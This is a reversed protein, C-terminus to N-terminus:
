DKLDLKQKLAQIVQAPASGGSLVNSWLVSLPQQIEPSQKLAQETVQEAVRYRGVRAYGEIFPLFETGDSPQYGSHLAADGLQAVDGWAREQRKLEARQYYYTWDHVPETGFIWLLGYPDQPKDEIVRDPASIHALADAIGSYRPQADSSGDVTYLVGAPSLYAVLSDAISGHFQYERVFGWVNSGSRLNVQQNRKLDQQYLELDFIYYTLTRPAPKAGYLMDLMGDNHNGLLTRPLGDLYVGTGSKLMPARWRMQWFLSRQLNWDNRYSIQTQLQFIAFLCLVGATLTVSNAQRLLLALLLASVLIFPLTFRDAYSPFPTFNGHLVSILLPIGAVLLGILALKLKPNFDDEPVETNQFSRLTFFAIAFVIAGLTYEVILGSGSRNILEPSIPRFWAFVSGFLINHFYTGTRDVIGQLPHHVLQHLSQTPNRYSNGVDSHAFLGQWLVLPVWAAVYPAIAKRTIGRGRLRYAIILLRFLELGIYYEIVVYSLLGLLIAVGTLAWVPGKRDLAAITVRLSLLFLTLSLYHPIFTVSESQQTFGPYLIILVGTLWAIDSRDPWIARFAYFAAIATSAMALMMILHWGFPHVGLVSFLRNTIWGFLPRDGTFYTRVGSHGFLNYVAVVPWDDHYFGVSRLFPGYVLAEILLLSLIALSNRQRFRDLFTL